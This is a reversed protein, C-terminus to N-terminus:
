DQSAQWPENIDRWVKKRKKVSLCEENLARQTDVQDFERIGMLQPFIRQVFPIQIRKFGDYNTNIETM